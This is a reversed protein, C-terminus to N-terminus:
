TLDLVIELQTYYMLTGSNGKWKSIFALTYTDIYEGKLEICQEWRHHIAEIGEKFYFQKLEESM